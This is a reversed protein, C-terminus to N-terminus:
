YVIQCIIKLRPVSIADAFLASYKNLEFDQGQPLSILHAPCGSRCDSAGFKIMPVTSDPLAAMAQSWLCEIPLTSAHTDQSSIYCYGCVDAVSRLADIHWHSKGGGRIHRGLRARLGGPGRASGFYVYIGPIFYGRGLRGVTLRQSVTLRLILAYSGPDAPLGSMYSIKDALM